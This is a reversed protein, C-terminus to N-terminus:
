RVQKEALDLMMKEHEKVKGKGWEMMEEHQEVKGELDEVKSSLMRASLAAEDLAARLGDLRAATEVETGAVVAALEQVAKVVVATLGNFNVYIM